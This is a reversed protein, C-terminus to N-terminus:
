RYAQREQLPGSNGPRWAHQREQSIGPKRSRRSDSESSSKASRPNSSLLPALPRNFATRRLHESYSSAASLCHTQCIAGHEAVIGERSIREGPSTGSRDFPGSEFDPSPKRRGLTRIGAEGGSWFPGQTPGNQHTLAPLRFFVRLNSLDAPNGIQAGTQGATRLVSRWPHRSDIGAEGGSWFPGQTPGNQHTLAPLRFFVRLNSLDAPNGIQAGTQGATRLVSRWPHRSDIGAEGGNAAALAHRTVQLLGRDRDAYRGPM